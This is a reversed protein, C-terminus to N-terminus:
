PETLLAAIAGVEGVQPFGVALCGDVVAQLVHLERLMHRINQHGAVLFCWSMSEVEDTVCMPRQAPYPPMSSPSLRAIGSRRVTARQSISAKAMLLRTAFISAPSMSGAGIQGFRLVKGQSANRSRTSMRVPPYGQWGNLAAPCRLPFCSGRCRQGHIASPMRSRRGLIQKKSFTSPCILKPSDSTM